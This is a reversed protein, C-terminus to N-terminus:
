SIGHLWMNIKTIIPAAAALTSSVGELITKVSTISETIIKTKPKTSSLQGQITQIEAELDNKEEHRLSSENLLEKIAEIIERLEIQSDSVAAFVNTSSTAQQISSNVLHSGVIVINPSFHETPTEKGSQAIEVEDIGKTTIRILYFSAGVPRHQVIEILEKGEFYRLVNMVIQEGIGLRKSIKVSQVYETVSANSEDYLAKLVRFRLRRLEDGSDTL